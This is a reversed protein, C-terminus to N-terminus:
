GKRGGGTPGVSAVNLRAPHRTPPVLMHAGAGAANGFAALFSLLVAARDAETYPDLQKAVDGAIGYFAEARPPMPWAPARGNASAHAVVGNAAAREREVAARLAAELEPSLKSM